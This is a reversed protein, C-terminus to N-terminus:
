NDDRKIPKFTKEVDKKIPNDSEQQEKKIRNRDRGRSEGPNQPSQKTYKQPTNNEMNEIIKQKKISIMIKM